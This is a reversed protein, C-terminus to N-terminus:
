NHQIVSDPFISINTAKGGSCVSNIAHYILNQESNFGAEQSLNALTKKGIYSDIRHPLDPEKNLTKWM